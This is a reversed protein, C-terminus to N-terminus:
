AAAAFTSTNKLRRRLSSLEQFIPLTRFLSDPHFDELSTIRVEMVAGGTGVPLNLVANWRRAVAAVNDVDVHYPRRAPLATGAEVKAANTRGSIDGLVTMRLTDESRRRKPPQVSLRGFNLTYRMNPQSYARQDDNLRNPSKSRM